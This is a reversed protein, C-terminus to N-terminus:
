EAEESVTELLADKLMEWAQFLARAQVEIWSEWGNPNRDGGKVRKLESPNCLREAIERDCILAFGGESYQKWDKAGNLTKKKADKLGEINEGRETYYFLNQILERSYLRVGNEWSSRLKRADINDLARFLHNTDITM